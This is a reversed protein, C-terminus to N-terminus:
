KPPTFLFRRFGPKEITGAAIEVELRTVGDPIQGALGRAVAEWDTTQSNRTRRWSAKWGDGHVGEAEGLAAKMTNEAETKLTTWADCNRRAEALKKAIDELFPDAKLTGAVDFPFRRSLWARTAEHGDMPPREEDVIHRQWWERLKEFIMGELERDRTVHYVRFDSGAVLVAVDSGDLDLVGNYHTVQILYETPIADTGVPGWEDAHRSTKIELGRPEDLDLRDPTAILFDHVPHRFIKNEPNWVRRGTRQTYRQAILTELHRGWWLWEERAPDPEEAFEGRKELWVHLPTAWKSMGLVAAADSGGLGSRRELLWRARGLDEPTTAAALAEAM